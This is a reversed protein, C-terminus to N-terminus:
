THKINKSKPLEIDFDTGIDTIIERFNVNINRRFLKDTQMVTQHMRSASFVVARNRVSPIFAGDWGDSNGQFDTGGNSDELYIILTKWHDDRKWWDPEGDPPNGVDTHYGLGYAMDQTRIFMNMKGRLIEAKTVGKIKREGTKEDFYYEKRHTSFNQIYRQVLLNCIEEGGNTSPMVKGTNEDRGHVLSHSFQFHHESNSMPNAREVFMWPPTMNTNPVGVVYDMLNMFDVEPLFDDYVDFYKRNVDLRYNNEVPPENQHIEDSTDNNTKTIPMKDSMVFDEETLGKFVSM